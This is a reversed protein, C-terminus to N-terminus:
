VEVLRSAGLLHMMALGEAKMAENTFPSIVMESPVPVGSM